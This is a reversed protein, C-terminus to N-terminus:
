TSSPIKIHYIGQPIPFRAQQCKNIYLETCLSIDVASGNNLGNFNLHLNVYPFLMPYEELINISTDLIFSSPSPAKSPHPIGVVIASTLNTKTSNNSLDLTCKNIYLNLASNIVNGYGNTTYNNYFIITSNILSIDQIYVAGGHSVASNTDFLINSNKAIFLKNLYIAGGGSNINLAKNSKNNKFIISSTDAISIDTAYIAGGSDAHNNNFIISSSDVINIDTAYIAGGSNAHNNTFIISSSDTINIDTAYIAGGLTAYNNDFKIYGKNYLNISITKAFIAGGSSNSSNDYFQLFTEPGSITLIDHTVIIGGYPTSKYKQTYNFRCTINSDYLDMTNSWFICGRGSFYNGYFDMVGGVISISNNLYFIGGFNNTFYCKPEILKINSNASYFLGNTCSCDAIKCTLNNISLNGSFELISPSFVKNVSLDNLILTNSGSNDYSILPKSGPIICNSISTNNITVNSSKINLLQGLKSFTCNNISLNNIIVKSANSITILPGNLSINSITLGSITITNPQNKIIFLGNSINTSNIINTYKNKIFTINSQLIYPPKNYANKIYNNYINDMNGMYQNDIFIPVKKYLLSSMDSCSVDINTALIELPRWPKNSNTCGLGIGWCVLNKSAEIDCQM